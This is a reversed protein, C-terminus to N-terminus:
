PVIRLFTSYHDATYFCMEPKTPPTGGCVIRRAGRHRVGPTPVTYERYFGRAHGPLRRERNGFVVGDKPSHFPGGSRISRDVTRAEPPLDSLTITAAGSERANAIGGVTLM